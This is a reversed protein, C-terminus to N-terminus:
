NIINLEKKKFTFAIGATFRLTPTLQTGVVNGYIPIELKTNFSFSPSIQVGIEPRIFVWEGGTNPVESTDVKDAWAKRYKLILAPNVITNFVLFNIQMALILRYLM